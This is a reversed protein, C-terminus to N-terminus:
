QLLAVTSSVVDRRFRLWDYKRARRRVESRMGRVEKKHAACWRLRTVLSHVDGAPVVWGHRGEEVLDPACTRDTAIVPLGANMSELVVHAFGELLSPFVFLDCRARLRQLEMDPCNWHIQFNAERFATMVEGEVLGRGCAHFEVGSDRVQRAAEALVLAGKRRVFSGVFLLRLPQDIKEERPLEKMPLAGYPIVAIRSPSAGAEVLTRKTYTSASLIGEALRWEDRYRQFSREPLLFEWEINKDRGRRDTSLSEVVDVCADAHPHMQFLIRRIGPRCRPFAEYAYTSYSILVGGRRNAVAAAARGLREASWVSAPRRLLRGAIREFTVDLPTVINIGELGVSRKENALQFSCPLPLRRLWAAGAVDTVLTVNWGADRFAKPVEYNDRRGAFVITCSRVNVHDSVPVTTDATRHTADRFSIM